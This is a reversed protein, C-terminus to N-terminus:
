LLHQQRHRRPHLREAALAHWQRQLRRRPRGVNRREAAYLSRDPYGARRAALDDWNRLALPTQEITVAGIEQGVSADDPSLLPANSEVNVTQQTSGIQLKFDQRARQGVTLTVDSNLTAFGGDSVVLRYPGIPLDQMSYAGAADTEVTRSYGTDKNTAVVSVHPLAAGNPDTALGSLSATNVQAQASWAGALLLLLTAIRFWSAKVQVEPLTAPRIKLPTTEPACQGPGSVGM